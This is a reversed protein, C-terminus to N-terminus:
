ASASLHSALSAELGAQVEDPSGEGDVHLVTGRAGYYGILPETQEVYVRLRRRVTEAADDERHTLVEGCGDCVGESGASRLLRQLHARVGRLEPAGSIRRVLVDDSAKLLVVADIPRSFAGALAEAQAVTRPFGDM